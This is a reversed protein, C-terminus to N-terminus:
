RCFLELLLLFLLLLLLLLLLTGVKGCGLLKAGRDDPRLIGEPMRVQVTIPQMCIFQVCNLACYPNLDLFIEFHIKASGGIYSKM